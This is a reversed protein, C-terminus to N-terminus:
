TNRHDVLQQFEFHGFSPDQGFTPNFNTDEVTDWRTYYLATSGRVM